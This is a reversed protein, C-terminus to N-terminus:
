GYMPEAYNVPFQCTVNLYVHSYNSSCYDDTSFNSEHYELDLTHNEYFNYNTKDGFDATDDDVKYIPHSNNLYYETWGKDHAM